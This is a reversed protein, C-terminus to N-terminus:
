QSSPPSSKLIFRSLIWLRSLRLSWTTVVSTRLWIPFLHYFCSVSHKPLTYSRLSSFFSKTSLLTFPVQGPFFYSLGAVCLKFHIYLHPECIPSVTSCLLYSLCDRTQYVSGEPYPLHHWVCFTDPKLGPCHLTPPFPWRPELCGWSPVSWSHIYKLVPGTSAHQANCGTLVWISSTDPLLM